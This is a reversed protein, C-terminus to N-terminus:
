VAVRGAGPIDGALDVLELQVARHEAPEAMGALLKAAELDDVHHIAAIGVLDDDAFDLRPPHLLQQELRCGRLRRGCSLPPAMFNRSRATGAAIRAAATDTAACLAAGSIAKSDAGLGSVNGSSM